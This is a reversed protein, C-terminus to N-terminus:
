RKVSSLWNGFWLAIRSKLCAYLIAIIAAKLTLPDAEVDWYRICWDGLKAGYSWMANGAFVPNRAAPSLLFQSFPWQTGLLLLFFVPGLVCALGTDRWFGRGHGLRQMVLDIGLSPIILLLPFPPPVMHTVPNYIPALMPQAPFLPLLWVMVLVMVTYAAAASTAAWRSQSARTAAVLYIPFMACAVRYFKANHQQNPFTFETIVISVQLVLVGCMFLVLRGASARQEKGARNQWALVLLLAGIGVAYIGLALLTHPPSLIEVDLGYANHWWNDFPASVLMIFSGWITVWAGLPGHFGWLRVTAAQEGPAPWFTSKLVLWGCICGPLAGGLYIMMHAPTWFSDRGITSHWSIDWSAGIPICAAGFVTAFCYWPLSSARRDAAVQAGLSGVALTQGPASM